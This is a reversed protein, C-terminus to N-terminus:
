INGIEKLFDTKSLRKILPKKIDKKDPSTKIADPVYDLNDIFVKAGLGELARSFRDIHDDRIKETDYIASVVKGDRVKTMGNLYMQSGSITMQPTNVSKIAILSDGYLSGRGRLHDPISDNTMEIAPLDDIRIKNLHVVFEAM